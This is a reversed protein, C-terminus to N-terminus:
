TVGTKPAVSENIVKLGSRPLNWRSLHRRFTEMWSIVKPTKRSMSWASRGAQGSGDLMCLIQVDSGAKLLGFSIPCAAGCDRMYGKRNRCSSRYNVCNRCKSKVDDVIESRPVQAKRDRTRDEFLMTVTVISQLVGGDCGREQSSKLRLQLPSIGLSLM